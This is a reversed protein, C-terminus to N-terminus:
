EITLAKYKGKIEYCKACSWVQGKWTKKNKPIWGVADGQCDKTKIQCKKKM